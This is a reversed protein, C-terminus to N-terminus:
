ENSTDVEKGTEHLTKGYLHDVEHQIVIADKGTFTKRQLKFKEDRYVVKVKLYREVAFLKPPTHQISLCSEISGSKNEKLVIVPNIMIGGNRTWIINYNLGTQPAALGLANERYKDILKKFHPLFADVHEKECEISEKLLIENPWQLIM